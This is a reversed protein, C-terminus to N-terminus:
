QTFLARLRRAFSELPEGNKPVQTRKGTSADFWVSHHGQWLIPQDLQNCWGIMLNLDEGSRYLELELDNDTNRKGEISRCEIHFVLEIQDDPQISENEILSQNVVAHKWPKFCLDATVAVLKSFDSSPQPIKM